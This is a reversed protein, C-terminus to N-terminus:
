RNRKLENQRKLLEAWERLMLGLERRSPHTQRAIRGEIDRLDDILDKRDPKQQVLHRYIQAAKRLYGQQAYLRAMTATFFQPSANM